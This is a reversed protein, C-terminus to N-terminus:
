NSYVVLRRDKDMKFKIQSRELFELVDSLNLDRGMEGWFKKDPIKGEYVVEINYWRSLQRMVSELDANIFNFTGNKWAMVQSLDVRYENRLGSEPNLVAQQGPNLLLEKTGSDTTHNIQVKISGELLTTREEPEDEYANVNFHTGLVLVTQNPTAVIFPVRESTQDNMVRVVEFYAEGKVEVKREATSFTVPFRISSAANLWVMSGDPLRLTFQRGRPTSLTHWQVERGENEAVAGSYTLQGNILEPATGNVSIVGNELTDLVIQTGDALTLVAGDKGPKADPIPDSKQVLENQMRESTNQFLIFVGGLGFLLIVAAAAWRWRRTPLRHIKTQKSQISNRLAKWGAEGSVADEMSVFSHDDIKGDIARALIEQNKQEDLLQFFRTLEEGFLKGEEYLALL